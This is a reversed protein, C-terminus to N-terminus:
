RHAYFIARLKISFSSKCPERSAIEFRCSGLVESISNNNSPTIGNQILAQLSIGRQRLAQDVCSIEAPNLKRWEAQAAQVVASRMIGGFINMFDRFNQAVAHTAPIAFGFAALLCIILASFLKRM